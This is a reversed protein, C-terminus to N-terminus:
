LYYMKRFYSSKKELLVSPKGQEVVKGADLVYLMDAHEVTKLRHAIVIITMKGRFTELSQQILRESENDLASTAEDLILIDPKRALVRALAIRQREGGSLKGGLEGVNTQFGRPMKKIVDAVNALQAAEIIDKKSISEDYFRINNEVTDNLLVVEQSVYGVHARWDATAIASVDVGDVTIDGANPDRLRLLLDVITTKGSGSEGILGVMDGKHVHLSVDTLVKKRAYSFSVRDFSIKKEFSFPTDGGSSQAQAHANAIFDLISQLHPVYTNVDHIISQAVQLQTFVRYIAFVIVAFSGFHFGNIKYFFSFLAIVFVVSLFQMSQITLGKMVIIRMRYKTFESFRRRAEDILPQEISLSKISKAASMHESTFHSIDKSWQAAKKAFVRSQFFLPKYVFVLVIVSVFACIAAIASINFVLSIYIGISILVVSASSIRKFLATSKSLDTTLRQELYGRRQESLFPWDARLARSFLLSGTRSRYDEALLNVFYDAFFLFCSKLFFLVLVSILIYKVTFPMHLFDFVNKLYRSIVDPTQNNGGGAFELLPILLSIGIGELIGSVFGIVVLLSIRKRYGKYAKAFLRFLTPIRKLFRFFSM